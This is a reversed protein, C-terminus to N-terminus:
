GQAAEGVEYVAWGPFGALEARTSRDKRGALWPGAEAGEGRILVQAARNVFAIKGGPEEVVVPRPLAHLASEEWGSGPLKYVDIQQLESFLWDVSSIESEQVRLRALLEANEWRLRALEAVDRLTALLVDPSSTKVVFKYAAGENIADLVITPEAYSSLIVRITKPYQEKLLHLLEVGNMGPMRYDSVVVDFPPAGRLFLLAQEASAVFDCDWPEDAVVRRLAKLINEEDDVFLFRPRHEM